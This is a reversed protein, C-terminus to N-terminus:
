SAPRVEFRSTGALDGGLVVRGGPARGRFVVAGDRTVVVRKWSGLLTLEAPGDSTVTVVMPAASSLGARGTDITAARLNTLAATLGNSRPRASPGFARGQVQWNNGNQMTPHPGCFDAGKTVNEDVRDITEAVERGPKALSEADIGGREGDRSALGSVWYAGTPRLDLGTEEDHVFAAPEVTYRVRAPNRDRPRAMAERYFCNGEAIPGDHSRNHVLVIRYDVSEAAALADASARWTEVNVLPDLLGNAARFVVNTLNETPGTDQVGGVISFAGSWRDPWRSAIRFTGMGGSSVGSLVVRDPDVNLRRVADDTADLADQEALPTGWTTTRGNPFIVVGPNDYAGALVIGTPSFHVPNVNQYQNAGHLFVIMPPRPGANASLYVAYPQYVGNYQIPDPEVGEPLRVRSHYLFTNLGAVPRALETRSTGLDISAIARTPPLRGALVDAQIKDQYPVFGAQPVQEQLSSVIEMSPDEGRVYALDHVPHAGDAWSGADDLMGIAGVARWTVAGPRAAAIAASVVNRARDVTVPFTAREAFGDGDAVLWRGSGSTPLLALADLGLPQSVRWGGGPLTPAGTTPDGDTDFGVGVLADHGDVLTGLVAAVSLAGDSTGVQLQVLDATNAPHPPAPYTADGGALTNTNAGRDDYAYDTWVHTGGVYSSAGAILPGLEPDGAPAAARTPVAAALGGALALMLAGALLRTRVSPM